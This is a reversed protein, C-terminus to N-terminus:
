TQDPQHARLADQTIHLHRDVLEQAAPDGTRVLELLQRHQDRAVQVDAPYVLNSIRVFRESVRWLQNLMRELTETAGPQLLLWHFTRHAEFFLDLSSTVDLAELRVLAEAASELQDASISKLSRAIIQPELLRRADYVEDLLQLSVPAAVAGRQPKSEVLGEGELTRLAERVPIHSVGFREQIQRIRIREGPKIQGSFLLERLRDAVEDVLTARGIHEVPDTM